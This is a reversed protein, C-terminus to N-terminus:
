CVLYIVTSDQPVGISIQNPSSFYSNDWKTVQSRISLYSKFWNICSRSFGYLSLKSFLINHNITDFAKQYDVYVCGTVMNAIKAHYVDTLFELIASSTSHDKRFGHQNDSLIENLNLFTSTQFHIIKELLKRPTSLISIPRWNSKLMLNGSKPIPTIIGMKWEQPFMEQVISENLLATLESTMIKFAACLLKSNLNTIGSPKTVDLGNVYKKVIKEDVVNLLFFMEPRLRVSISM